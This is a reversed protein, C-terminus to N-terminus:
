INFSERVKRWNVARKGKIELRNNKLHRRNKWIEFIGELVKRDFLFFWAFKKLEYWLIWLFDLTFNQWCENKYLTMLHNKYSHYKVFESQMAKNKIAAGDGPEDPGAASRDHYAITDLLVYAKYGAGVLRFASDVDEKYSHYLEDFFNGDSFKVKEIASRRFMPTAGSVGFVWTANDGIARYSMKMKSKVEDWNKGTYKEIIRRNRFVRLGLSDIKGTFSGKLLVNKALLSNFDWRMLRPSVAAANENADLFWAMKELCDPMLYMDQNLLLFYESDTNKFLRNHGGAFGINEKLETIEFEVPFDMLEKKIRVVTDDESSNDLVCLKWNKFAQRRLSDFLYPIYKSGNWAVLYVSLKM